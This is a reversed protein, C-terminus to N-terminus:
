KTPATGSIWLEKGDLGLAQQPVAAAADIGTGQDAGADDTKQGFRPYLM